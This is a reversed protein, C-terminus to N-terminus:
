ERRLHGIRRLADDFEQAIESATATRNRAVLERHDRRVGAALELRPVDSEVGLSQPLFLEAQGLFLQPRVESQRADEVAQERKAALQEVDRDGLRRRWVAPM